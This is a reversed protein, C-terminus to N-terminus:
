KTGTFVCSATVAGTVNETYTLTSGSLVGSGSITYSNGCGDTFTQTPITLTNGSATHNLTVSKVCGTGGVSGSSTLTTNNVRTLTISATGGCSSTGTWTGAFQTAYDTSSGSKTCGSFAFFTVLALSIIQVTKKM